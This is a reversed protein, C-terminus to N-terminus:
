YLVDNNECPVMFLCGNILVVVNEDMLDLTFKLPFLKNRAHWSRIQMFNNNHFKKKSFKKM